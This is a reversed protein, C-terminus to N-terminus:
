RILFIRDRWTSDDTVVRNVLSEGILSCCYATFDKDQSLKGDDDLRITFPVRGGRLDILYDGEKAGYPVLALSNPAGLPSYMALSRGDIISTEDIIVTNSASTGNTYSVTKRSRALLHHEVTGKEFRPKTGFIIPSWHTKLFDIFNKSEYRIQIGESDFPELDFFKHWNELITDEFVASDQIAQFTM